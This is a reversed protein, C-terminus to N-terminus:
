IRENVAGVPVDLKVIIQLSMQFCQALRVHVHM